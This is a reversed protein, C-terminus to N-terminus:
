RSGGAPRSLARYYEEVLARFEEPVDGNQDLLLQEDEDALERRLQFELQKMGELVSQQLRLVEEPDDYTRDRDLARMADIMRALDQPDVGSRELIGALAQAEGARERFERRLQRIEDPDFPRLGGVRSRGGTEGGNVAPGGGGGQPNAQGGEGQQGGRGGEGSQGQEGGEGQQGGRGGEQGEQGGEGQQGEGQQEGGAQGQGSPDTEGGQDQQGETGERQGEQGRGERDQLRREMSELGRVLDQASELAQTELDEDAQRGVADIAEEIRGELSTIAQGTQNEFADVYERDTQGVLGRSYLLRERLQTERITSAAAELEEAGERESRRAQASLDTLTNLIEEVEEAMQEKTERIRGVQDPSPRGTEAMADLRRQVDAQQAALERARSQADALDRELRDSQVDELQDRVNRLRRLADQAEAVGTSGRGAASQRMAEAGQQLQRSIEELQRNGTERSLRELERAAEEAEEALERASQSGSGGGAASGQQAAARRRQRELEQEQRRALERVRELTEDVQNDATEQQSRQVTEYQNRLKDLELEFLDALDEADPGGQGGGGGQQQPSLSVFREYTEEAKQLIRLATQQPPIAESPELDRLRAESEEMAEVAEPLLDAISQFAEDANTIGRNVIRDGLTGVQERLRQQTLAVSVVNEEWVDAEYREQDRVLNFSAAIIQRQMASLDDDMGGGQGGQGGGGGGAPAERFDRRFPRVQLFYIDSLATASAPGNDRAIGYYSVLDGVELDFEEMFITHGATVEALAGRSSFISLSDPPGGNVSYVLTIDAIGFDDDARAELFVEEISSVQTDRGPKNFSISPGQDTLVDVRYDPAGAVWVGDHTQFQIGYFGDRRVTFAGAYTGDPAPAMSITDGGDLIVRAGPTEITPTVNLNVTTGSLAAVDGGYEFARPALGTYSPFVYEMALRDVAPLDAVGITFTGSRVGNSEVYYRTEDAVSLLLGEFAGSGDEIMPVAEYGNSEEGSVFLRVDASAFGNLTATILQDSNRSITTDGPEVSVSYPNVSEADRNPFLLASAGHRFYSPGMLIILFSALTLGGLMGSSRRIAKREIQRGNDIRRMREVARDILAAVLGHDVDRGSKASEVAALLRSQLSPEHEELYLAVRDDPIRRLLPLIVSWVVLFAAGAWLVIRFIQVAEPQFRLTQLGVVSVLFTLLAGAGVIVLGRLLLKLRWRRRVQGIVGLIELDPRRNARRM